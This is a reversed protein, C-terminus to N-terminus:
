GSLELVRPPPRRAIVPARVSMRFDPHPAFAQASTEAPCSAMRSALRHAQEDIREIRNATDRLAALLGELTHRHPAHTTAGVPPIARGALQCARSHTLSAAYAHIRALWLAARRLREPSLDDHLQCTDLDMLCSAAVAWALRLREVHQEFLPLRLLWALILWLWTMRSLM